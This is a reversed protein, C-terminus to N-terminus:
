AYAPVLVLDAVTKKIKGILNLNFRPPEDSVRQTEGTPGHPVVWQPVITMTSSNLLGSVRVEEWRYNELVRKWEADTVISYEIGSLTVLKFEPNQGEDSTKKPVLVGVVSVPTLFNEQGKKQNVSSIKSM